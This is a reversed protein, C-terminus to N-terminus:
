WYHRHGYWAYPRGYWWHRYYRGYGYGYYPRWVRYCGRYGCVLAAQDVQASGPTAVDLATAALPAASAETALMGGSLLTVAALTALTTKRM